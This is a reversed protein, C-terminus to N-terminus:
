RLFILFLFLDLHITHTDFKFMKLRHFLIFVVYQLVGLGYPVLIMHYILWTISTVMTMVFTVAMGMGFASEIKGSVGLFPCIGLFNSLVLNKVLLTSIVIILLNDM